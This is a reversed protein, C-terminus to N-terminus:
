AQPRQATVVWVAAKLRVGDPGLRAAYAEHLAALAADRAAPEAGQLMMRGFTDATIFDVAEQATRTGGFSLETQVDEVQLDEWGADTVVRRLLDADGLSFPGPAGPPPLDPFGTHPVAATLPLTVWENVVAPQWAVFALRGGPRTARLLNAFAAVPDAFFMVGFRSLVVDFAAEDFVHDQADAQAFAVQPLGAARQAAVALLDTAIDVGLVSGTPGVLDAAQSSLQGAGCGVDLVRDGAGLAAAELVRRGLPALMEDYREPRTSWSSSAESNWLRVMDANTM